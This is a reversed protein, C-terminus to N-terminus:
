VGLAAPQEVCLTKLYASLQGRHHVEHGVMILLLEWLPLRIALLPHDAEVGALQEPTIRAFHEETQAQVGTWQALMEAFSTGFRDGGSAELNPRRFATMREAADGSLGFPDLPRGAVAETALRRFFLESQICHRVLGGCSFAGPNPRWGFHEEPVASVLTHTWSRQRRFYSLFEEITRMPPSEIRAPTM